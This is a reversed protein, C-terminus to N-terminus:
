RGYNKRPKPIGCVSDDSDYDISIPRSSQKRLPNKGNLNSKKNNFTMSDLSKYRLLAARNIRELNSMSSSASSSSSQHGDGAGNFDRSISRQQRNFDHSDQATSYRYSSPNSSKSSTLSPEQYLDVSKSRKMQKRRQFRRRPQQTLSMREDAQIPNQLSQKEVTTARVFEGYSQQRGNNSPINIATTSAAFEKPRYHYSNVPTYQNVPSKNNGNSYKLSSPYIQQNSYFENNLSSQNKPPSPKITSSTLGTSRGNYLSNNTTHPLRHTSLNSLSESLLASTSPPTTYSSSNSMAQSQPQSSTKSYGPNPILFDSQRINPHRITNGLSAVSSSTSSNTPTNGTSNLHIRTTSTPQSSQYLPRVMNTNISYPEVKAVNRLRAAPMSSTVKDTDNLRRFRYTDYSLESSPMTSHNNLRNLSEPSDLTKQSKLIPRKLLPSATPVSQQVLTTPKTLNVNSITRTQLDASNTSPAKKNSPYTSSSLDSQNSTNGNTQLPRNLNSETSNIRDTKKLSTSSFDNTKSNFMQKLKNVCTNPTLPASNEDFDDLDNDQDNNLVMISKSRGLLPRYSSKTQSQTNTIKTSPTQIPLASSTAATTTSSSQSITPMVPSPLDQQLRLDWESKSIASCVRKQATTILPQYNTPNAYSTPPPIHPEIEITLPETKKTDLNRDTRSITSPPPTYKLIPQASSIVSPLTDQEPMTKQKQLRPTSIQKVTRNDDRISNLPREALYSCSASSINSPFLAQPKSSDVNFASRTNELSRRPRISVADVATPDYRRILRLVNSDAMLTSNSNYYGDGSGSSSSPIKTSENDDDDQFIYM